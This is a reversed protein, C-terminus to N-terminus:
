DTFIRSAAAFKQSSNHVREAPRRQCDQRAFVLMLRDASPNKQIHEM